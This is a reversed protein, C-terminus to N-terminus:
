SVVILQRLLQLRRHTLKSLQLQEDLVAVKQAWRWLWCTNVVYCYDIMTKYVTDTVEIM